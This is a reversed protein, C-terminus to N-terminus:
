KSFEIMKSITGVTNTIDEGLNSNSVEFLTDFAKDWYKRNSTNEAGYNVAISLTITGKIPNGSPNFMTYEMEVGQIVGSIVMDNWCFIVNRTAANSVMSMLGDMQTKVSYDNIMSAISSSKVKEMFSGQILVRQKDWMFADTNVINEFVLPVTMINKISQSLQSESDKKSTSKGSNNQQSLQFSLEAPNFQVEMIKYGSNAIRAAMSDTTSGADRKRFAKEVEYAANLIAAANMSQGSNKKVQSMDNVCLVAKQLRKEVNDAMNTFLGDM